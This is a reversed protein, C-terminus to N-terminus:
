TDDYQKFMFLVGLTLIEYGIILTLLELWTKRLTNENFIYYSDSWKCMQESLPECRNFYIILRNEVRLYLWWQPIIVKTAM